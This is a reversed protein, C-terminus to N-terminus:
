HNFSPKSILSGAISGDEPIQDGNEPIPNKVESSKFRSGKFRCWQVRFGPNRVVMEIVIVGSSFSMKQLIKM